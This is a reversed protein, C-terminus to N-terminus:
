IKMLEMVKLVAKWVAEIEFHYNQLDMILQNQLCKRGNKEPDKTLIVSFYFYSASDHSKATVDADTSMSM